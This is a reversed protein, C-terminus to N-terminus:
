LCFVLVLLTYGIALLAAAGGAAELIHRPTLTQSLILGHFERGSTSCIQNARNLSVPPTAQAVNLIERNLDLRLYPGTGAAAPIPTPVSPIRFNPTIREHVRPEYHDHM